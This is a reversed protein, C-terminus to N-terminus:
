LHNEQDLNTIMPKHLSQMTAGLIENRRLMSARNIPRDMAMFEGLSRGLFLHCDRLFHSGDWYGADNIARTWHGRDTARIADLARLFRARRLLLKPTFGFCTRTLRAIRRGNLDLGEGLDAVKEIAPNLLRALIVDIAPSELAAHGLHQTLLGDFLTSPSAGAALRGHLVSWGPFVEDLAVVRDALRSLDGGHLRAWGAPTLGLGILTGSGATVYGAHSSPGFFASDPIPDFRRRDLALSWPEAGLSFRINAWSPFFVDRFPEADPARRLVYRHYGSVYRRLAPAPQWFEVAIASSM